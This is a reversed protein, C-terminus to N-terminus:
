LGLKIYIWALVIGGAATLVYTLISKVLGIVDIKQNSLTGEIEAVRDGLSEQKNNLSTLNENVKVLTEGFKEMSKNQKEDRIEQRREKEKAEEMQLEMLTALRTLTENKEAQSNLKRDHDEVKTELKAVKQYIDEQVM